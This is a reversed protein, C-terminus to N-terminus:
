HKALDELPAVLALAIKKLKDIDVGTGETRVMYRNAVLISYSGQNTKNNFEEDVMRGDVKGRKKYADATEESSEASFASMINVLQPIGALDSLELKIQVHEQRYVAQASSANAIQGGSMTSVESREMGGDLTQPLFSKLVEGSVPQVAKDINSNAGNSLDSMIKPSPLLVNEVLNTNPVSMEQRTYSHIAIQTIALLLGSALIIVLTYGVSQDAPTKMLKPLGIYFVYLSYLGALGAIFGHAPIISFLGVVWGATMSYTALKFAQIINRTGQFTPALFDIVYSLVVVSVFSMVYGTLASSLAGMFSPRFIHGMYSNGFLISGILGCISPIAALLAVYNKLLDPITAPEHEIKDWESKPQILICKAREIVHLLKQNDILNM